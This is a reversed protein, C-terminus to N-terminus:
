VVVVELLEVATHILADLWGPMHIGLGVLLVMLTLLVPTSSGFAEGKEVWEPPRGMLIPILALLQGAFALILSFFALIPVIIHAKDFAASTIHSESASVPLGVMCFLGILVGWATVPSAAFLGRVGCTKETRYKAYVNGCSFFLLAKGLSHFLIHLLAGLLAIKTGLGVGLLVMGMNAITSYALLEKYERQALLLLGSIFLSILGFLVLLQGPFADGLAVRAVASVRIIGYLATNVLATSILANIPSPAQSHLAPLWIHGPVLGARIGYGSLILIFAVKVMGPNLLSGQEMLSTWSLSGATFGLIVMGLLALFMGVSPILMAKWTVEWSGHEGKLSVLLPLAITAAELGLWLLGLNDWISALLLAAVLLQLLGYYRKLSWIDTRGKFYGLSYVVTLFAMLAVIDSMYISLGDIYLSGFEMAGYSIIRYTLLSALGLTLASSFISIGEIAKKNDSLFIALGAVLPIFVSVALM